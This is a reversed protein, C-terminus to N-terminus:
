GLSECADVALEKVKFKICVLLLYIELAFVDTVGGVKFSGQFPSACCVTSNAVVSVYVWPDTLWAM